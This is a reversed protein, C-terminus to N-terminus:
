RLPKIRAGPMLDYPDKWGPLARVRETWAHINPHSNGWDYGHEEVPYFVYGAVSFDAITPTDGVMFKSGALHKEVVAAAADFRGKLFAVVNPDPAQPLFAKLFRYTALYSTFKHNDFLIWRLAELKADENAPAFKGSKQALYTLIVGSQTLKRGMTELVPAEGMENVGQRWEPERTAGKFFDVFVPEWDLGACNLYLAAKYSNGSQCFCHLKYQAM